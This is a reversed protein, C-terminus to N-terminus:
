SSQTQGPNTAPRVPQAPVDKVYSLLAQTCFYAVAIARARKAKPLRGTDLWFCPYGKSSGDLEITLGSRCRGRGSMLNRLARYSITARGSVNTTPATFSVVLKGTDRQWGFGELARIAPNRPNRGKSAM